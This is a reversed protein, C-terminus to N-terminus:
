LAAWVEEELVILYDREDDPIKIQFGSWKPFLVKDGKAWDTVGSGVEVVLGYDPTERMADPIVFGASNTKPAESRQVLIRGKGIKM